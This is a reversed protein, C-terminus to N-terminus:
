KCYIYSEIINSITDEYDYSFAVYVFNNYQKVEVDGYKSIDNEKYVDILKKLYEIQSEELDKAILYFESPNSTSHALLYDSARSFELPLYLSTKSKEVVSFSDNTFNGITYSIDELVIDDYCDDKDRTNLLIITTSIALVLVILSIIILKTYKRILSIIAKINNM